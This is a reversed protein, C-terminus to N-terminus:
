RVMNYYYLITRYYSVKSNKVVLMRMYFHRLRWKACNHTEDFFAYRRQQVIRAVVVVGGAQVPLFLISFQM